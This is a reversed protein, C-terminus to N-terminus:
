NESWYLNSVGLYIIQPLQKITVVLPTSLSAAFVSGTTTASGQVDYIGAGAGPRITASMDANAGGIVSISPNPISKATQQNPGVGASNADINYGFSNMDPVTYTKTGDTWTRGNCLYWGAYETGAKGGGIRIPLPNENETSKSIDTTDTTWFNSSDTFVLPLISIITGFPVAGGIEQPTKFEIDGGSNVAVAIKDLDASSHTYTLTDRFITGQDFTVPVNYSIGGSHMILLTNGSINDIFSHSEAKLEIETGTTSNDFGMTFVANSASISTMTFDFFSTAIDNTFRLNTKFNNRRNIIWQYPVNGGIISQASLYAPDSELFGVSVVPPYISYPNTLPDYDHIPLITDAKLGTSNGKIEKWLASGPIGQPGQTGTAGTAGQAGQPGTVGQPGQDGKIGQHGMPGGGNMILQDFNYNVKDLKTNDSDSSSIQKLNIAM